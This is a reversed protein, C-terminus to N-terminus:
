RGDEKKTARKNSAQSSRSRSQEALHAFGVCLMEVMAEFSADLDHLLPHGDVLELHAFGHLASRLARAGDITAEDGLGFGRLSLALIEVVHEVAAELEPDGVCPHRDTAAYLEPNTTAFTRWAHATAQVADAGSRGITAETLADALLSRGRLGLHRWLDEIGALHRYLAPQTVDLHRAVASLSLSDLGFEGLVDVAADVVIAPSLETTVAM